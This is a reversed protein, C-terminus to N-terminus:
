IRYDTKLVPKGDVFVRTIVPLGDDLRNIILVDGKKGPELSGYEDDMMVARAPNITILRFM